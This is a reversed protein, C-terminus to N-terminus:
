FFKGKEYYFVERYFLGKVNYLITFLSDIRKV